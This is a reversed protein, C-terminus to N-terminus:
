SIRFIPFFPYYSLLDVFDLFTEMGICNGGPCADVAAKLETLSSFSQAVVFDISQLLLALCITTRSNIM